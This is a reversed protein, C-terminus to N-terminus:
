LEKRGIEIHRGKCPPPPDMPKRRGVHIIGAERGEVGFGDRGLYRDRTVTGIISEFTVGGRAEQTCTLSCLFM